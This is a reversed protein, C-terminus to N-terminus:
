RPARRFERLVDHVARRREGFAMRRTGGSRHAYPRMGDHCHKFEDLLRQAEILLVGYPQMLDNLPPADKTGQIETLEARCMQAHEVLEGIETTQEDLHNEDLRGLVRTIESIASLFNGYSKLYERYTPLNEDKCWMHICRSLSNIQHAARELSAVLKGYGDFSTHSRHKRRFRTPNLYVSERARDLAAHTQRVVSDLQKSRQRWYEADEEALDESERLGRAIDTLLNCETEALTRIAYEASRFRLPPFVLFNVVIGICCGVMVLLLIQALDILRETTNDAMVFTSFAFFAATTVQPGQRGLPRWHGIALAFLTVIVFTIINPGITFGLVAQVAIGVAVAGIFRLSQSLSQYITVQMILVASFPAFAPSNADILYRAVLWALAAALTSKGILLLTHREYGDSHIARRFWERRRQGTM